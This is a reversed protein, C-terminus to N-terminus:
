INKWRMELNDIIDRIHLWLYLIDHNDHKKPVYLFEGDVYQQIIKIVEAPLVDLAKKYKM